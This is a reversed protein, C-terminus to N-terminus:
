ALAVAAGVGGIALAVILLWARRVRDGAESAPAEAVVSAGQASGARARMAEGEFPSGVRLRKGDRTAIVVRHGPRVYRALSGPLLAQRAELRDDIARAVADAERELRATSDSRVRASEVLGLPVGLVIVSALAILATSTVLRRRM